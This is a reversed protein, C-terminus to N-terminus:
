AMMGEGAERAKKRAQSASCDYRAKFHQAFHNQNAYGLVESIQLISLDTTTVLHHGKELVVERITARVGQGMCDKFRHLFRSTSLHVSAAIEAVRLNIRSEKRILEMARHIVEDTRAQRMLAMTQGQELNRLYVERFINVLAESTEPNQEKLQQFSSELGSPVREANGPTEGIFLSGHYEGQHWIPHIWEKVGFPCTVQKSGTFPTSAIGDDAEMCRQLRAPDKKVAKCYSCRHQQLNEPLLAKLSPDYPKFCFPAPSLQKLARLRDVLPISQEPQM